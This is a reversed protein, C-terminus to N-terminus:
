PRRGYSALPAWREWAEEHVVYLVTRIGNFWITLALTEMMNGTVVYGLGGLLAIGIARWVVSKM